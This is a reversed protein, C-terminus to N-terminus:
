KSKKFVVTEASGFYSFFIKLYLLVHYNHINKINENKNITEVTMVALQFVIGCSFYNCNQCKCKKYKKSEAEVYRFVLLFDVNNKTGCGTQKVEAVQM